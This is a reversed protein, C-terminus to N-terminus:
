NDKKLIWYARHEEELNWAFPAYGVEHGREDFWRYKDSSPGRFQPFQIFMSRRVPSQTVQRYYIVRKESDFLRRFLAPTEQVEVRYVQNDNYKASSIVQRDMDWAGALLSIILSIVFTAIVFDVTPLPIKFKM